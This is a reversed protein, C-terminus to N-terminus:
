GKDKSKTEPWYVRQGTEVSRNGYIVGQADSVGISFPAIIPKGDRVSLLFNHLESWWPDHPEEYNYIGMSALWHKAYRVERDMFGLQSAAGQEIFIPIGEQAPQNTVTAGAWWNEKSGGTSVKAVQERYYMGKGLTIILTGQDGMIQENFDLHANYLISTWVLKQGGAYEYIAEINDCTERGDKWYNIGGTAYVSIPESGIAWNAVDIQHSALEALLGGSYEKYMRWNILREFKPDPVPRRWNNNRHWQARVFMIKGLAGKRIMEMAVQYLVSSRRQLGVQLVLKPNDAMAKRIMEGEDEKFYMTKEVFVHKGANLADVVMQAHLNLPTAILVADMDKRELMKRYETYTEPNSGITEVGKKLNPPYIDCTAICHGDPITALFKLLTCGETGTGIIGYRVPNGATQATLIGPASLGTLSSAATVSAATKLFERRTVAQEKEM